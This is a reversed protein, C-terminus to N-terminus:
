KLWAGSRRKREGIRYACQQFERLASTLAHL